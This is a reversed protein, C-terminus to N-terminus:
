VFQISLEMDAQSNNFNLTNYSLDIKKFYYPNQKLVKSIMNLYKPTLSCNSINLSVLDGQSIVQTFLDVIKDDNLNINSIKIKKIKQGKELIM